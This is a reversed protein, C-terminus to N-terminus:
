VGMWAFALVVLTGLVSFGKVQTYEPPADPAKTRLRQVAIACAWLASIGLILAFGLALLYYETKM